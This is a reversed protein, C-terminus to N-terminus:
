VGGVGVQSGSLGPPEVIQPRPFQGAHRHFGAPHPDAVALCFDSERHGAAPGARRPAFWGDGVVHAEHLPVVRPGEGAVFQFGEGAVGDGDGAEGIHGHARVFQEGGGLVAVEGEAGAQAQLGDGGGAEDEIGVTSRHPGDGAGGRAALGAPQDGRCPQGFQGPALGDGGGQGVQCEVLHSQRGLLRGPQPLPEREM